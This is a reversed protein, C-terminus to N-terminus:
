PDITIAQGRDYLDRLTTHANRGASIDNARAFGCLVRRKKEGSHSTGVLPGFVTASGDERKMMGAVEAVQV